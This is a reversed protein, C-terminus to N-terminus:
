STQNITKELNEPKQEPESIKSARKREWHRSSEAFAGTGGSGLSLLWDFPPKNIFYLSPILGGFLNRVARAHNGWKTKEPKLVYPSFMSAFWAAQTALWTPDTYLPSSTGTKTAIKIGAYGSLLSALLDWYDKGFQKLTEKTHKTPNESFSKLGQMIDGYLKQSYEELGKGIKQFYEQM